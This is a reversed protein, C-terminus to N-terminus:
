IVCLEVRTMHRLKLVHTSMHDIRKELDQGGFHLGFQGAGVGAHRTQRGGEFVHHLLLLLVADGVRGGVGFLDGDFDVTALGFM